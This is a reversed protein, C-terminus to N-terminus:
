ALRSTSVARLLAEVVEGLDDSELKPSTPLDIGRLSLAEANPFSEPTQTRYYPHLHMPFFIARAQIGKENLEAVIENRSKRSNDTIMITYRWYVCRAWPDELVSQIETRDRFADDYYKAIRRKRAIIEEFRELQAVGVAAHLNSMRFNLAIDPFETRNDPAPTRLAEARRIVSEDNTLIMGGEGTAILKNHFSFCGVDGISGVKQGRYEAGSAEAVDEVVKLDNSRAIEMVPDMDCPHGYLHVVLIAKTRPTIRRRVDAPDVLFKDSLTDAFVPTAGVLNIAFVSASFTFTPVIVEDGAGIGLSQLAVILAATGNCTSIGYKVGCYRAFDSEFQSVFKGQWSIWGSEICETLYKIEEKGVIPEDLPIVKNNM